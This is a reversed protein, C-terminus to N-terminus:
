LGFRKTVGGEVRRPLVTGDAWEVRYPQLLDLGALFLEWDPHPTWSARADLRFSRKIALRTGRTSSNADYADKYGLLASVGFGRGLLARGGVNVKHAPTGTRLDTRFVDTPGKDDQIKEYTYNAFVARGASVTFEESLEVGWASARNRNDYSVVSPAGPTLVFPFNRDRIEMRYVVLESSLAGDLARARWGAEWSSLHQPGLEANGVLRIPASLRYDAHKNFLAPMTHANAYSLRLGHDEHPSYLAAAQWSPQLGAVQSDELSVGAVATLEDAVKASHHTFWRAIENQQAPHGAFTQDSYAGTLRRGAGVVSNVREEAWASRHLLEADYQYTRLAVTGAFLPDAAVDMGARSVVAELAGASDLKRAARLMEFDEARTARQVPVVGPIGQSQWSGGALVELDTRADPTLVGRVNLKNSHLYDNAEGVGSPGPNGQIQQFTHSVRLGGLRGGAEASEATARMRDGARASLSGAPASRPKRTVVNVVGLASNSGYLAANPGRVIEVREIDQMQVPLSAWYVGGLFPSYASRGDVLVQMESVFDRSFGRASVIARNGDASRACVVDMGARFRLLDPLSSYGYAKIEESTVVDVAAPARWASEPRRSAVSVTAEEQFFEFVDDQARAPVAAFALLLMARM